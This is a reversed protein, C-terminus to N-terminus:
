FSTTLCACTSTFYSVIRALWRSRCLVVSFLLGIMNTSGHHSGVISGVNCRGSWHQGMLFGSSNDSWFVFLSDDLWRQLPFSTRNGKGHDQVTIRMEHVTIRMGTWWRSGPGSKRWAHIAWEMGASQFTQGNLIRVNAAPGHIEIEGNVCEDRGRFIAWQGWRRQLVKCLIRRRSHQFDGRQWKLLMSMLVKGLPSVILEGLQQDPEQQVFSRPVKLDKKM